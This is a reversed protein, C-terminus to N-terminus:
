FRTCIWSWAHKSFYWIDLEKTKLWERQKRRFKTFVPSSRSRLNLLVVCCGRLGLIISVTLSRQNVSGIAKSRDVNSRSLAYRPIPCAGFSTKRWSHRVFVLVSPVRCERAPFRARSRFNLLMPERDSPM